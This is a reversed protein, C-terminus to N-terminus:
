PLLLRQGAVIVAAGGLHNARELKWVGRRTDGGYHTAAISWLTDGPEVVYSQGRASAGSGHAAAGWFALALLIVTFIRLFM